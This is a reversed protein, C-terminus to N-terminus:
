GTRSEVGINCVRSFCGVQIPLHQNVDNLRSLSLLLHARGGDLCLM